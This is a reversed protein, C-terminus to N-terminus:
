DGNIARVEYLRLSFSDASATVSDLAFTDATTTVLELLASDASLGRYVRYSDAYAARHWGLTVVAGGPDSMLTLQQPAAPPPSPAVHLLLTGKGSNGSSDQVQVVFAYTGTQTPTGALVGDASLTLGSPLSGEMVSWAVPHPVAEIAVLTDTYFIRATAAPLTDNLVTLPLPVTSVFRLVWNQPDVAVQYPAIGLDFRLTQWRESNDIRRWLTHAGAVFRLDLRTTFPPTPDLQTQSLVVATRLRGDAYGSGFAVDYAPRNTLYLYNYVFPTVDFGVV